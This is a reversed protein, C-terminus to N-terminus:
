KKGGRLEHAKVIRKTALIFAATRYDCKYEKATEKVDKYATLMIEKLKENVEKEKWYYGQSNQVWEFYSVTVGGANALIDPVLTVDKKFLIEDAEPTTPGNALEIIVGAKVRGANEKTVQNELAALVLVDTKLELLESNTLDKAFSRVSRTKKKHEILKGIHLGKENYTGGSSDSVAIIKYGWGYLIQAMNQGANGFGQIVISEMDKIEKLIYAGGIATAYNRGLSGGLEIPKGTIVGPFHGGRIKEYEDLMWAMIQPTTYVDPAPIDKNPGIHKHIARIYARSLNELENESLKKPNVTVGGKGGGYPINVVACKMAMWFALAKVKDLDVQPHYRIGGKFPGRDNNYQIRYGQFKKENNDDMKVPFEVNIINKEKKLFEYNEIKGIKAAKELQKMANEFPNM